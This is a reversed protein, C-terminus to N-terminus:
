LIAANLNQIPVHIKLITSSYNISRHCNLVFIGNQKINRHWETHEMNANTYSDIANLPKFHNLCVLTPKTHYSVPINKIIFYM